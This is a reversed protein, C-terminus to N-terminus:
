MCEHACVVQVLISQCSSTTVGLSGVSTRLQEPPPTAGIVPARVQRCMRCIRGMPPKVGPPLPEATRSLEWAIAAAAGPHAQPEVATATAGGASTPPPPPSAELGPQDADEGLM